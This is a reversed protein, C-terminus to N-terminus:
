QPAMVEFLPTTIEPPMKEWPTGCFRARIAYRGPPLDAPLVWRISAMQEINDFQPCTGEAAVAFTPKFTAAESTRGEGLRRDLSFVPVVGIPFATMRIFRLTMQAGPPYIDFDSVM